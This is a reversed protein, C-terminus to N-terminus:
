KKKNIRVIHLIHSVGMCHCWNVCVCKSKVKFFCVALKNNSEVEPPKRKTKTENKKSFKTKTRGSILNKNEKKKEKIQEKRRRIHALAYPPGNKQTYTHAYLLYQIELCIKNLSTPIHITEQDKM